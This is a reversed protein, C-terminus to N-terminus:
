VSTISISNGRVLYESTADKHWVSYIAVLIGDYRYDKAYDIQLSNVNIEMVKSCFLSRIGSM